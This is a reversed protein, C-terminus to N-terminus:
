QPGGNSSASAVHEGVRLANACITLSPNVGGAMPLASGDVVYLNELGRFRCQPDLPASSPDDGMRVTGLAHSLTLIPHVYCFAAGASRLIRRSAAILARRAPVDRRSYRHHIVARPLGYRDQASSNLIVRNEARPQDEAIAVLGIMHSTAASALGGLPAPLISRLLGPPPPHIQQIIGLKGPHAVSEHGFYYDFFCLQKHFDRVGPVRRPFFGYVIASCHRMLYRGVAGGAPNLHNLGSSLLLHATAVAGAALVYTRARYSIWRHRARDHCVLRSIRGAHTEFRVAHTNTKIELGRSILHPLQSSAPDNKAGLACAYTDCTGCRICSRPGPRYNIALPLQAPQLGLRIGAEQIRESVLSLPQAPQPYPKNRAPETPDTGPAGSVDFLEETRTYLPEVDQYTIPWVAGSGGVIGPDAHFDQERYRLMVGGFFVASGGVCSTSGVTKGRSDGFIRYAPDGNFFPTLELSGEPEWNRPDRPVWDGRELMLVRLGADILPRAFLTGSLGSGVVITDYCTSDRTWEASRRSSQSPRIISSRVM